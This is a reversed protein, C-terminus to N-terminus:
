ATITLPVSLRNVPQRTEMDMQYIEVEERKLFYPIIEEKLPDGLDRKTDGFVFLLNRTSEALELGTLTERFPRDILIVMENMVPNAYIDILLEDRITQPPAANEM